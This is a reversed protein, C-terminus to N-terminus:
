SLPGRLLESLAAATRASTAARVEPGSGPGTSDSPLGAVQGLADELTSFPRQEVVAGATDDDFGAAVLVDHAQGAPLPTSGRSGWRSGARPPSPGSSGCAPCGATPSRTSGSTRRRGPERAVPRCRTSTGPTRSCPSGRCSPRGPATPSRPRRRTVPGPRAAPGCRRTRRPTTSSTCPTSRWSACSAPRPWSSSPGTTATTAGGGPRGARAWPGPGTRGPSRPPRATSTTRPGSWRSCRAAALRPRRHGRRGAPPGARPPRPGAAPGRRRGTRGLPARPHLAPRQHGRGPQAHRGQARAARRDDGVASRGARGPRPPGGPRLGRGLGARPLQRHLLEHRRRGAPHRRAARAPRRGLRTRARAPPPDGLRGRGRRPPRLHRPRLRGAGPHAPAGQQRVVRRQGRRCRGGPAPLLARGAPPRGPRASPQRARHRRGPSTAPCAPLTAGASCTTLSHMSVYTRHVTRRADAGGSSCASCTPTSPRPTRSGTRGTRPSPSRTARPLRYRKDRVHVEIEGSVVYNFEHGAHQVFEEPGPSAAGAEYTILLCDVGPLSHGGIQRCVEGGKLTVVQQAARPVLELVESLHADLGHVVSVAPPGPRRGPGARRRAPPRGTGPGFFIEDPTVGLQRALEYLTDVSPRSHGNEIQSLASPASGSGAPWSACRCATSRAGPGSTRVSTWPGAPPDHSVRPTYGAGTRSWRAM